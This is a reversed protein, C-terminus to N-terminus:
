STHEESRLLSQDAQLRRPKAHHPEVGLFAQQGKHAARHIPVAKQLLVKRERFLKQKEVKLSQLWQRLGAKAFLGLDDEQKGAELAGLPLLNQFQADVLPGKAETASRGDIEKRLLRLRDKQALRPVIVSDHRIVAM